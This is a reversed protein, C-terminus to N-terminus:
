PQAGASEKLHRPYDAAEAARDEFSKAYAASRAPLLPDDSLAIGVPLITPDYNYDRCPGDAEPETRDMVLSGVDVQERGAPWAITADDSPDGDTALTVMLRWTLPGQAIRQTLDKTLFDAGETALTANPISVAAVTPVMSWRVLHSHGEADVLRFANLSNYTEDAWSGTWPATKAWDNFAQSKPHSAFFHATAQPDPKHTEPNLEQTKTLAYFDVPNSVVFVPSNNMGSRWEEGDPATIRIAMSKVRGMIDSAVPNGVAIALRGIVPYSGKALMPATSYTAGAGSAQFSGTFCVGKSHNRRHGLPDGGRNGLADVIPGPGLRQPSLWGGAYAFCSAGVLVLFGILATRGVTAAPTLPSPSRPTKMEPM